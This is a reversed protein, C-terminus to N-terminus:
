FTIKMEFVKKDDKTIYIYSENDADARNCILKEGERCEGIYHVEMVSPDRACLEDVTFLNMAMRIYEINNVHRSMDIDQSRVTHEYTNVVTEPIIFKEFDMGKIDNNEALPLCTDTLRKVRHTDCDLICLEQTGLALLENESSLIETIVNVRIRGDDNSKAKVVVEEDWHPKRYVKLKTKTVAWYANNKEKLGRNGVGQADFGSIMANQLLYFFQYNGLRVTYDSYEATINFKNEYIM